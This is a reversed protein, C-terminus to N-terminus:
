FFDADAHYGEENFAKDGVKLLLRDGWTLRTVKEIEPVESKLAPALPGPTAFVTLVFDNSYTQHEMVYYLRDANAHFQDMSMERQIWLAIVMAGSLGLALGLINIISNVKNKLLSRLTINIYNKFMALLNKSDPQLIATCM